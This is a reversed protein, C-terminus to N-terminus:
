LVSKQHEWFSHWIKPSRGIRQRWHNFFVITYWICHHSVYISKGLIETYSFDMKLDLPTPVPSAASAAAEGSILPQSLKGCSECKHSRKESNKEHIKKIHTQM